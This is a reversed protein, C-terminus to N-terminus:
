LIYAKTVNYPALDMLIQEVRDQITEVEVIDEEKYGLSISSLEELVEQDVEKNKSQYARRVANEIKTVDFPVIKNNRKLIKM